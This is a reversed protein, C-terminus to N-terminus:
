EDNCIAKTIIDADCLKKTLVKLANGYNEDQNFDIDPGHYLAEKMQRSLRLIHAISLNRFTKTTIKQELVLRDANTIKAVAIHCLDHIFCWHAIIDSHQVNHRDLISKSCIYLTQVHNETGDNFIANSDSLFDNNQEGIVKRIYRKYHVSEAYLKKAYQKVQHRFLPHKKTKNYALAIEDCVLDNTFLIGYILFTLFSSKQEETM